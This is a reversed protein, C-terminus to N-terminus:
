RCFTLKNVRRKQLMIHGSSYFIRIWRVDFFGIWSRWKREKIRIIISDNMTIFLLLQYCEPLMNGKELSKKQTKHEYFLITTILFRMLISYILKNYKNQIYHPKVNDATLWYYVANDVIPKSPATDFDQLKHSSITTKCPPFYTYPCFLSFFNLNIWLQKDQKQRFFYFFIKTTQFITTDKCESKPLCRTNIFLM